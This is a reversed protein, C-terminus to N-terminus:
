SDVPSAQVLFVCTDTSRYCGSSVLSKVTAMKTFRSLRSYVAVVAPDRIWECICVRQEGSCVRGQDSIDEVPFIGPRSLLWGFL